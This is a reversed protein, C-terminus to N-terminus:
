EENLARTAKRKLTALQGQEFEARRNAGISRLMEARQEFAKKLVTLLGATRRAAIYQEYLARMKSNRNIRNKVAAETLKEEKIHANSRIVKDLDEELCHLKFKIRKARAEAEESMTAYFAFTSAQESMAKNLDAGIGLDSAPDLTVERGDPLLGTQKALQKDSM